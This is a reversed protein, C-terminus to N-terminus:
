IINLINAIYKRSRNLDLEEIQESIKMTHTHPPPPPHRNWSTERDNLKNAENKM